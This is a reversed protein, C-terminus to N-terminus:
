FQHVIQISNLGMILSTHMQRHKIKSYKHFNYISIGSLVVGAALYGPALMNIIGGFDAGSEHERLQYPKVMPIVGALLCATGGVGFCIGKVLATKPSPLSTTDTDAFINATLLLCLIAIIRFHSM